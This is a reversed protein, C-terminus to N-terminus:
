PPRATHTATTSLPGSVCRGEGSCDLNDSSGETFRRGTLVIGMRGDLRRGGMWDAASVAVVLAAVAASFVVRGMGIPGIARYCVCWVSWAAM